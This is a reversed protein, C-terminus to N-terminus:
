GRAGKLVNSWGYNSEHCAYEYLEYAPDLRCPVHMTWPRTGNMGLNNVFNATEVV